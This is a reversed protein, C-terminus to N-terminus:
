SCVCVAQSALIQNKFLLEAFGLCVITALFVSSCSIVDSAPMGMREGFLVRYHSKVYGIYSRCSVIIIRLDLLMLSRSMPICKWHGDDHYAPWLKIELGTAM